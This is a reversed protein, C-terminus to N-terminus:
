SARICRISLGWSSYSGNSFVAIGIKGYQDLYLEARHRFTGWDPTASWWWTYETQRRLAGNSYYGIVVPNFPEYNNNKINSILENFEPVTPIRWGLPCVSYNTINNNSGTITMASAAAYNYWVGATTNGSDHIRADTTSDGSILDTYNITKAVDINTTAPNLRM